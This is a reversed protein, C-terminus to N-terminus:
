DDRECVLLELEIVTPMHLGHVDPFPNRRSDTVYWDLWKINNFSIDFEKICNYNNLMMVFENSPFDKTLNGYLRLGIPTNEENPSNEVFVTATAGLVRIIKRYKAPTNTFWDPLTYPDTRFPEPGTWDEPEIIDYICNIYDKRVISM